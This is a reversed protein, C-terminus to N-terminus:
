SYPIAFRENPKNIKRLFLVTDIITRLSPIYSANTAMTVKGNINVTVNARLLGTFQQTLLATCEANQNALINYILM